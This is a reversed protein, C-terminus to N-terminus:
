FSLDRDSKRSGPRENSLLKHLRPPHWSLREIRRV